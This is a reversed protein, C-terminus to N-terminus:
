CKAENRLVMDVSGYWMWVALQTNVLGGVQADPVHAANPMGLDFHLSMAGLRAERGTEGTFLMM